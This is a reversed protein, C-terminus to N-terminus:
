RPFERLAAEAQQVKTQTFELSSGVPTNLQVMIEALDAEPM